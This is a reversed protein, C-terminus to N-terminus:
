SKIMSQPLIYLFPFGHSTGPDPISHNNIFLFEATKSRQQETKLDHGVRQLGMSQLEGPRGIDGFNKRVCLRM